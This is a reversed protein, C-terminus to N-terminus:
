WAVRSGGVVEQVAGRRDFKAIGEITNLCHLNGRMPFTGPAAPEVEGSTYAPLSSPGVTLLGPCDDRVNVTYGATIPVPGEELKLTQLKFDGLEGWFAVDVITQM